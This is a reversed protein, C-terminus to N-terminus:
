QLPYNAENSLMMIFDGKNYGNPSLNHLEIMFDFFAKKKSFTMQKLVDYIENMYIQVNERTYNMDRCAKDMMNKCKLYTNNEIPGNNECWTMPDESQIKLLIEMCIVCIRKENQTFSAWYSSDYKM